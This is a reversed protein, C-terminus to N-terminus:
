HREELIGEFLVFFDEVKGRIGDFSVTLCSNLIIEPAKNFTTRPCDILHCRTMLSEQM